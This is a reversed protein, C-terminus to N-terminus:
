TWPSDPALDHTVVQGTTVEAIALVTIGRGCAPLRAFYGQTPREAHRAPPRRPVVV